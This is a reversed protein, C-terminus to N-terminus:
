KRRRILAAVGGVALLSMTAPEPVVLSFGINEKGGEAGAVQFFADLVSGEAGLAAGVIPAGPDEIVFQAISWSASPNGGLLAVGGTLFSGFSHDGLAAPEASPALGSDETPAVATVIDAPGFLFHTDFADAFSPNDNMPSTFSVLAWDHQHLDGFFGMSGLANTNAMLGSPNKGADGTMNTVVLDFSVLTTGVPVPDTIFVDYEVGDFVLIDAHAAGALMLVASLLCAIKKM